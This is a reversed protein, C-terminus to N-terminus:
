YDHEVTLGTNETIGVTEHPGFMPALELIRTECICALYM